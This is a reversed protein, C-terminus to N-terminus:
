TLSLLKVSASEGTSHTAKIKEGRRPYRRGPRQRIPFRRITVLLEDYLKGFPATAASMQLIANQLATLAHLFSFEVPTKGTGAAADTMVWRVLNSLLLHAHMEKVIGAPTHSRLGTINLAHKWERYITEIRWRRHYLRVLEEAPFQVPDLLSTLLISPRFGRIEYHIM